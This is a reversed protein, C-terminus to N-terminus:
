NFLEPKQKKVEQVVFKNLIKYNITPNKFTKVMDWSHERVFDYFVVGLLEPIFQSRWGGERSAINAHVKDIIVPDFIKEVIDQEVLREGTSEPAGMEKHHKEKFENTVRKAWVTRGFRNVFDYNKIVVGEGVGADESILFKNEELVRTIGEETPNNIIRIPPIYNVGFSLLRSSYETYRVYSGDPRRVDFVYFDRWADDRYTKLSHPVLWEGYVHYNPYTKCFAKLPENQSAWAMFGANDNDLALERNRSGYRMEKGDFWVHANTGDIKPFIFCKGLLIGDVETSALKEVHQYKQYTTEM